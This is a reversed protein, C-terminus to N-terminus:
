RVGTTKGLFFHNPSGAAITPMAWTNACQTRTGIRTRVLYAGPPKLAIRKCSGIPM